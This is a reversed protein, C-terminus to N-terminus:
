WWRGTGYARMLIAGVFLAVVFIAPYRWDICIM